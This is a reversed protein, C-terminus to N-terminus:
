SIGAVEDTGNQLLTYQFFIYIASTTAFKVLTSANLSSELNTYWKACYKKYQVCKKGRLETEILKNPSAIKKQYLMTYLRTDILCCQVRNTIM